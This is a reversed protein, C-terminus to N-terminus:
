RGSRRIPFAHVVGNRLSSLPAANPKKAPACAPSDNRPARLALGSDMPRCTIRHFPNRTRAM